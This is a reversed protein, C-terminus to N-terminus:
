LCETNSIIEYCCEVFHLYYLLLVTNISSIFLLPYYSENLHLFVRIDVLSPPSYVWVFSSSMCLLFRWSKRPDMMFTFIIVCYIFYKIKKRCRFCVQYSILMMWQSYNGNFFLNHTSELFIQKYWKWCCVNCFFTLSLLTLNRQFTHLFVILSGFAM